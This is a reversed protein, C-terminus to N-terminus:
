VTGVVTPVPSAGTRDFRVPHSFRTYKWATDRIGVINESVKM